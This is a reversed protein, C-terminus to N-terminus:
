SDPQARHGRVAAGFVRQAVTEIDGGWPLFPKTIQLSVFGHATSWLDLTTEAPEGTPFLGADMCASVAENLHTWAGAALVEDIDPRPCPDMTALRYHEPHAVAFRVYAMAYAYLRELPEEVGAAAAVMAADLDEFVDIVVASLLADKDAFHLYLSPPTVGVAHAVARMSVADSSPAAAMLERAAAIIEARLQEGSGRPSRRRSTGVM